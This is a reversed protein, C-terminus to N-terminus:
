TMVQRRLRLGNIKALEGAVVQWEQGPSNGLREGLFELLEAGSRGTACALYIHGFKKEYAANGEALSRMLVDDALSVGAQEDGHSGGAGRRDGIRRHGGLAERLDERSLMAVAVENAALLASASGFPRAALMESVWRRSSCCDALWRRVQEDPLSDLEALTM